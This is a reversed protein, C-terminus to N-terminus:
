KHCENKFFVQFCSSANNNCGSAKGMVLRQVAPSLQQSFLRSWMATISKLVSNGDGLHIAKVQSFFGGVQHDASLKVAAHRQQRLGLNCATPKAKTWSPDGALCCTVLM